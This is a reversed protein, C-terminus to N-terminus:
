GSSFKCLFARSLIFYIVSKDLVFVPLFLQHPIVIPWILITKSHINPPLKITQSSYIKATWRFTSQQRKRYISQSFRPKENNGNKISKGDSFRKDIQLSDSLNLFKKRQKRVKRYLRIGFDFAFYALPKSTIWYEDWKQRFSQIINDKWGNQRM